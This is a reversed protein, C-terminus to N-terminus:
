RTQLQWVTDTGVVYVWEGRAYVGGGRRDGKTPLPQTELLLLDRDRDFLYAAIEADAVHELAADAFDAIAHAQPTIALM